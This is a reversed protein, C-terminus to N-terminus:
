SPHQRYATRVLKVHGLPGQAFDFEQAVFALIEVQVSKKHITEDSSRFTTVTDATADPNKQGFFRARYLM